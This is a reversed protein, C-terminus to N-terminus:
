ERLPMVLSQYSRDEKGSIVGPRDGERIDGVVDEEDVGDVADILYRVNYTVSFEKGDYEIEIEEDAEGVDPNTSNLKLRGPSVNLIVGTFDESSVVNMRKLSNLIIDRKLIIQMGEDTPFVREYEPYEAHILHVRLYSTDNRFFCTRERIGVELTGERGDVFRRIEAVARRPLIVGKIVVGEPAKKEVMSLRNGDTTVMRIRDELTHLLAGCLYPRLEDTGITSFTKRIMESLMSPEMFFSSGEEILVTPFQEADLGPLRYVVKGCIVDIRNNELKRILVQNGEGERIMEYLKRANVLVHGNTVVEAPYSAVLGIERDTATIRINGDATEFLLNNLIALNAKGAISLTRQIGDLLVDREVTFEM